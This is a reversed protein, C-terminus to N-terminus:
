PSPRASGAAAKTLRDRLAHGLGAPPPLVAVLVDLGREDAARLDAYLSRAAAALDAGIDLVDARRGATVEASAM